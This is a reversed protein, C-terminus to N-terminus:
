ATRKKAAFQPEYRFANGQYAALITTVLIDRMGQLPADPQGPLLGLNIKVQVMAKSNEEERGPLWEKAIGKGQQYLVHVYGGTSPDTCRYRKDPSSPENRLHYAEYGKEKLFGELGEPEKWFGIFTEETTRQANATM